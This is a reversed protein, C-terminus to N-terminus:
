VHNAEWIPAIADAILAKQSERRPGFAFLDWVGGGFDAGASLAYINLAAAIAGAIAAPLSLVQQIGSV